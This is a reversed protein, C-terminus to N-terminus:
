GIAARLRLRSWDEADIGIVGDNPDGWPTKGNGDIAHPNQLLVTGGSVGLVRYAHNWFLDADDVMYTWVIATRGTAVALEIDAM